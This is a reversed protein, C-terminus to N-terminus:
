RAVCHSTRGFGSPSCIYPGRGYAVQETRTKLRVVLPQDSTVFRPKKHSLAAVRVSSKIVTRQKVSADVQTLPGEHSCAALLGVAGIIVLTGCGRLMRAFSNQRSKMLAGERILLKGSGRSVM